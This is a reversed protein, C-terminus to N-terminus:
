PKHVNYINENHDNHAWSVQLDKTSSNYFM